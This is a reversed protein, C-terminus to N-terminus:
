LKSMSPKTPRDKCFECDPNDCKSELWEDKEDDYYADHKENYKKEM